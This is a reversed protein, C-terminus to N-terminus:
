DFLGGVFKCAAAGIVCVLALTLLVQATFGWAWIAWFAGIIALGAATLLLIPWVDDLANL